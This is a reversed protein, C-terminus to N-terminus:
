CLLIRDGSTYDFVRNWSKNWKVDLTLLAEDWISIMDQHSMCHYSLVFKLLFPFSFLWILSSVFSCSGKNCQLTENRFIDVQVLLEVYEKDLQTMDKLSGVATIDTENFWIFEQNISVTPRLFNAWEVWSIGISLFQKTLFITVLRLKDSDLGSLNDEDWIPLFSVWFNM